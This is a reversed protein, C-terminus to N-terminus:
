SLRRRAYWGGATLALAAAAAAGALAAYPPASSGSGEAARLSSDSGDVFLETTGGVAYWPAQVRYNNYIQWNNTETAPVTADDNINTIHYTHQSWIKRTYAWEDDNGWVEIGTNPTSYGCLHDKYNNLPVVIEAHWDNDVDAIVPMECATFSPRLDREWHIYSPVDGLIFLKCEDSYVIEYKGDRDFDFASCSTVGSSAEHISVSWEVDCTWAAGPVVDIVVFRDTVAVGIEPIRDGDVDAVCPPGGPEKAAYTSIRPSECLTTGSRGDLVWVRTGAPTGGWGVLVVEPDGDLNFDAVANFGDPLDASRDWLVSGDFACRGAIIDSIATGGLDAVCSLYRGTGCTNAWLFSGNHDWVYNGVIIESDGDHDIDAITPGGCYDYPPHSPLCGSTIWKANGTEGEFAIIRNCDTDDQDDRIAIIEPLGDNDIDAVAIQGIPVVMHATGTISYHHSGDKGSIVRLVGGRVYDKSDGDFTVFIIDPIGDPGYNPAPRGAVDAVVPTMMVQNSNPLYQPPLSSGNWSWEPTPKPEVNGQAQASEQEGMAWFAVLAIVLAAALAGAMLKRMAAGGEAFYM